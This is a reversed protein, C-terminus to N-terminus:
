YRIEVFMGSVRTETNRQELDPPALILTAIDVARSRKVCVLISSRRRGPHDSLWSDSTLVQPVSKIIQVVSPKQNM